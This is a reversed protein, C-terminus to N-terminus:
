ATDRVILKVPLKSLLPKTRNNRPRTVVRSAWEGITRGMQPLDLEITTLRPHYFTLMQFDGYGAVALDRPVQLGAEEAHKIAGCALLDGACFLARPKVTRLLKAAAQYGAMEDYGEAVLDGVLRGRRSARVTDVFGQYRLCGAPSEPPLSIVGIDGYGRALLHEAMTVGGRYEDFFVQAANFGPVPHSYILLPVDLTALRLLFREQRSDVYPYVIAAPRHGVIDAMEAETSQGWDNILVVQRLESERLREGFAGLIRGFYVDERLFHWSNHGLVLVTSSVDAAIKPVDRFFTGKGVRRVLIGERVLEDLARRVTTVSIGLEKIFVAETGIKDGPRAGSHLIHQYISDRAQKYKAHGQVASIQSFSSMFCIEKPVSVM